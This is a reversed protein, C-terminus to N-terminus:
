LTVRTILPCTLADIALVCTSLGVCSLKSRLPFLTSLTLLGATYPLSKMSILTLGPFYHSGLKPSTRLTYDPGVVRRFYEHTEIVNGAGDYFPQAGTQVLLSLVASGAPHDGTWCVISSATGALSECCYRVGCDRLGATDM